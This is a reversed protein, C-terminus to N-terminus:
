FNSRVLRNEQHNLKQRQIYENKTNNIKEELESSKVNTKFFLKKNSPIKENLMTVLYKFDVVTITYYVLLDRRKNIKRQMMEYCFYKHLISYIKSDSTNLINCKVNLYHLYSRNVKICDDDQLKLVEEYSIMNENYDILVNYLKLM